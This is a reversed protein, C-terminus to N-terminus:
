KQRNVTDTQRYKKEMTYRIKWNDLDISISYKRM